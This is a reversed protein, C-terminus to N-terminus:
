LTPGAKIRDMMGDLSGRMGHISELWWTAGAAKYEAMLARDTPTSYGIVTVEFNAGKTRHKRVYAVQAALDEPTMTMKTEDASPVVWGDWGAARRLAPRSEGGIWIPVRPRQVPLPSLTVGDVTYHRGHHKVTEGSLLQNLVDLGEDLMDARPAADGPEGFATYEVPAGGLGVGLILRGQSLIDLTAAAQALVQPRRRPLPTVAPGLKLHTTQMAAAALVVWPDTSPVGWAFALHDWVFLANWGATEAAEAFKAVINPDGFEGLTAVDIGFQM